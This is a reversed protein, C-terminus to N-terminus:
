DWFKNPCAGNTIGIDDGDSDDVKGGFNITVTGSEGNPGVSWVAFYGRSMFYSYDKDGNFPDKPLTSVVPGNEIIRMDDPYRTTSSCYTEIGLKIVRLDSEVKSSRADNQLNFFSMAAMSLLIGIITIVVLLEILTFGKKDM